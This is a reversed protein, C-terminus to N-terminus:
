QEELVVMVLMMARERMWGQPGMMSREENTPWGMRCEDRYITEEAEGVNYELKWRLKQERYGLM